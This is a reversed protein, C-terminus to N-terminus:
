THPKWNSAKPIYNKFMWHRKPIALQLAGFLLVAWPYSAKSTPYLPFQMLPLLQSWAMSEAIFELIFGTSAGPIDANLDSFNLVDSPSAPNPNAVRKVIRLDTATPTVAPDQQSRYIVFGTQDANANPTVALDASGGAPITAAVISTLPGEGKENISAAAYYYVGGRTGTFKSGATSAQPTVTFNAPAVPANTSITGGVRITAPATIHKYDGEELWVDQMLNIDGYSTAIGRVPAGYNIDNSDRGELRVRWQPHLFLDLDNQVIPSICLDTIRGYGGESGLVLGFAEYVSRYLLDTDSSGDLDFVHTPYDRELITKIGDFQQPIVGESGYFLSWEVDRLIRLTASENEEAKQDTVTNQLNAAVTIEAGAMLYKIRLVDRIYQTKDQRIDSFESHFASGLDGGIGTKTSWEYVSSNVKNKQIRRWLKFTDQRETVARLTADLSELRIAPIGTWTGKTDLLNPDGTQVAKIFDDWDQLTNIGPEFGRAGLAEALGGFQVGQGVGSFM